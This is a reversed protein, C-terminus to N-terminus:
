SRTWRNVRPEQASSGVPTEPQINGRSWRNVTRIGFMSENPESRTWKNESLPSSTASKREWNVEPLSDQSSTLREWQRVSSSSPSYTEAKAGREWVQATKCDDVSKDLFQRAILEDYTVGLRYDFGLLVASGSDLKKYQTKRSKGM